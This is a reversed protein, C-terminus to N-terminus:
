IIQHWLHNILYKYHMVATGYYVENVRGSMSAYPSSLEISLIKSDSQSPLTIFHWSSAYPQMISKGFKKEYILDDDLYVKLDQLSSRIM